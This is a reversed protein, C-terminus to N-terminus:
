ETEILPHEAPSGTSTENLRPLNDQLPVIWDARFFPYPEAALDVKEDIIRQFGRGNLSVFVHAYVAPNWGKKRYEEEIKQCFQWTLHPWKICDYFQWETLYNEVAVEEEQGSTKDKVMFYGSAAKTRLKMHWAFRHGEETWHVNGPILLHRLPLFIHLGVWATFCIVIFKKQRYNYSTSLPSLGTPASGALFPLFRHFFRDPFFVPTAALMFWPFIGITFLGANMLHFTAGILFAWKRTPKYLLAPVILLDIIIGGWGIVQIMWEETFMSGILPFDTREALWTRLPEGNLWDENIKAVGGFFYPLALTFLLLWKKWNVVQTVAKRNFFFNDLSFSRNAPLLPLIFSLVVVLYFHNLYRTQELLFSYTFCFFFLITAVRYFLGTMICLSLLGLFGFLIYMGEAPLPTVFDFPWYYFNYVPEIWYRNIWDNSFYRCVEWFMVAGFIIRFYILPAISSTAFLFSEQKSVDPQTSAPTAITKPPKRKAAKGMTRMPVGIYVLSM